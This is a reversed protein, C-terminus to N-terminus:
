LGLQSGIIAGVQGLVGLLGAGLKPDIFGANFDWEIIGAEKAWDNKPYKAFAVSTCVYTDGIVPNTLTIVNKGWFMSSQAQLWFMTDLQSNVPSTKQLRVTIKGNKAPNLSHMPSGDAGILIRDKEESYEISIGEEAVGGVGPGLSLPFTGFPGTIACQVDTFSYTPM